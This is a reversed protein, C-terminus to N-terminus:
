RFGVFTRRCYNLKEADVVGFVKILEEEDLDKVAELVRKLRKSLIPHNIYATIEEGSKLSYYIAADSKLYENFRQPFIYWMWHTRKMGDELEHVARDDKTLGQADTEDQALIFRNLNHPDEKETILKLQEKMISLPYQYWDDSMEQQDALGEITAIALKLTEIGMSNM